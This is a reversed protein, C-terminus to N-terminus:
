KKKAKLWNKPIDKSDDPDETIKGDNQGRSPTDTAKKAWEVSENQITELKKQIEESIEYQKCTKLM